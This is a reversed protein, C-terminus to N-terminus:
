IRVFKLGNERAYEQADTGAYGRIVFGSVRGSKKYGFAKDDVENIKKPLSVKKLKVCDFFAKEDVERLKGSFTVSTLASCGRFAEEEVVKVGKLVVKQITKNNRFAGEDVGKVSAPATYTKAKKSPFAEIYNTKRNVLVGDVAKYRSNSKVVFKKLNKTGIFANDDIERVNAGIVITKVKSNNKFANEDIERVKYGKIESPIVVKSAGGLYRHIEVYAVGDDREVSYKFNGSVAADTTVIAVVAISILMVLTLLVSTTQRIKRM